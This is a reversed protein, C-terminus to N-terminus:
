EKSRPTFTLYPGDHHSSLMDWTCFEHPGHCPGSRNGGEGIAGEPGTAKHFDFYWLTKAITLSMEMTGMAKGPCVRPGCTFPNFVDNMLKRRDAPLTEDLWRDPKFTFPDPFYESNHHITYMNVGVQTGRPIVHGDIVLESGRATDYQERWLTTPIPPNMRLSENICARLYTCSAVSQQTIEEPSDFTSRVELALREYCGPNRSLYFFAAALGTAVTDGGAILLFFAETWFQMIGTVKSKEDITHAAFSYFDTKEEREIKHRSQAMDRILLWFKTHQLRRVNELLIQLRLNLILPIQMYLYVHFTRWALGSLMIRNKPQTQLHVPTGFALLTAVDLTLRKCATTLNVPGPTRLQELFVDIQETMIPEFARMSKDTVAQGVMRRKARYKGKDSTSFLLSFWPSLRTSDYLYSKTVMDNHYIDRLATASNFVLKDPGQRVVSGYRQHSEFTKVHLRLLVVNVASYLNTIRALFPGPYRSLPHLFLRYGTLLIFYVIPLYWAYAQLLQLSPYLM